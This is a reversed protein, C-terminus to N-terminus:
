KYHRVHAIVPKPMGSGEKEPHYSAVDAEVKDTQGNALEKIWFDGQILISSGDEFEVVVDDYRADAGGEQRIGKVIKGAANELVMKM